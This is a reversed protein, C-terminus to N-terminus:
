DERVPPTPSPEKKEPEETKAGRVASKAALPRVERVEGPQMELPVGDLLIERGTRIFVARDNLDFHIGDGVNQVHVDLHYVERLLLRYGELDVELGEPRSSVRFKADFTGCGALIVLILLLSYRVTGDKRAGGILVLFFATRTM